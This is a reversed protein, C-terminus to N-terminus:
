RDEERGRKQQGVIATKGQREKKGRVRRGRSNGGNRSTDPRSAEKMSDRRQREEKVCEYTEQKM